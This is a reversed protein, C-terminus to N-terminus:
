MIRCFGGLFAAYDGRQTDYIGGAWATTAGINQCNGQRGPYKSCPRHRDAEERDPSENQHPGNKCVEVFRKPSTELTISNVHRYQVQLSHTHGPRTQRPLLCDRGACAVEGAWGGGAGSGRRNRGRHGQQSCPRTLGQRPM